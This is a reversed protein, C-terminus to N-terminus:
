LEGNGYGVGYPLNKPLVLNLRTPHKPMEVRARWTQANQVAAVAPADLHELM